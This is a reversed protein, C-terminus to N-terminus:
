GYQSFHKQLRQCSNLHSMQYGIWSQWSALGRTATKSGVIQFVADNLLMNSDCWVLVDVAAANVSVM